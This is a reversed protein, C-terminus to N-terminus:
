WPPSATGTPPPHPPTIHRVADNTPPDAMLVADVAKCVLAVGCVAKAFADEGSTLAQLKQGTRTDTLEEWWWPGNKVATM